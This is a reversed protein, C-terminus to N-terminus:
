TSSHWNMGIADLAFDTLFRSSASLDLRQLNCARKLLSLLINDTLYPASMRRGDQRLQFPNFVSSFHLTTKSRWLKHCLFQWRKCVVPPLRSSPM